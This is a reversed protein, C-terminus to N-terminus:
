DETYKNKTGEELLFSIAEKGSSHTLSSSQLIVDIFKCGANFPCSSRQPGCNEWSLKKNTKSLVTQHIFMVLGWKGDRV